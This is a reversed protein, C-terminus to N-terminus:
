YILDGRFDTLVCVPRVASQTDHLGIFECVVDVTRVAM